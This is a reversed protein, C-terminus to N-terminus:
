YFYNALLVQKFNSYLLLCFYIIVFFRPRTHAIIIVIVTNLPNRIPLKNIKNSPNTHIHPPIRDSPNKRFIVVTTNQRRQRIPMTDFYLPTFEDPPKKDHKPGFGFCSKSPLSKKARLYFPSM